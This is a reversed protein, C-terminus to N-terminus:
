AECDRANRTTIQTHAGKDRTVFPLEALPHFPPSLSLSLSRSLTHQPESARRGGIFSLARHPTACNPEIRMHLHLALLAVTTHPYPSTLSTKMVPLFETLKLFFVHFLCARTLKSFTGTCTSYVLIARTVYMCVYAWRPAWLIGKRQEGCVDWKHFHTFLSFIM